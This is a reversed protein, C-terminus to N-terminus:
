SFLNAIGKEAETTQIKNCYWSHRCGCYLLISNPARRVVKLNKKKVIMYDLKKRVSKLRDTLAMNSDEFTALSVNIAKRLDELQQKTFSFGLISIDDINM